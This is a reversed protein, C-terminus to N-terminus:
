LLALLHSFFHGGVDCVLKARRQADNLPIEFGHEVAHVGGISFVDLRRKVLRLEQRSQDLVQARQRQGFRSLEREIALGYICCFQDLADDGREPRFGGGLAHRQAHIRRWRKRVNASITLADRLHERVEQPICQPVRRLISSHLNSQFCFALRDDDRDAVGAGANGAIIQRADKIAKVARVLTAHAIRLVCASTPQPQGNRAADDLRM